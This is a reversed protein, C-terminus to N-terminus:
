RQEDRGSRQRADKGTAERGRLDRQNEYNITMQRLCKSYEPFPGHINRIAATNMPPLIPMTFLFFTLFRLHRRVKKQKKDQFYIKIVFFVIVKINFTISNTM